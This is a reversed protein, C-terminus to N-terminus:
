LGQATAAIEALVSIALTQPDRAGAILGIPGRMAEIRAASVGKGVLEQDRGLRARRSGQAGIYFAHSQAAYALLPPEWDHDHFFLAVATWPDPKVSDPWRPAKLIEISLGQRRAHELTIIDPTFLRVDYGATEALVGIALLEYGTGFLILAIRPEIQITTLVKGNSAVLLNAAQRRKLIDATNAFHSRDPHPAVVVEVAGGCPLRFDLWPSGAGYLLKCPRRDAIARCAHGAIDAEICGSSVSGLISGDDFVVMMAGVRRYAPGETATVVVVACPDSGKAVATLIAPDTFDIAQMAVQTDSAIM